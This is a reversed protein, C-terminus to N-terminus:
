VLLLLPRNLELGPISYQLDRLLSRWMVHNDQPRIHFLHDRPAGQAAYYPLSLTPQMYTHDYTQHPAQSRYQQPPYSSHTGPLQPVPQHRRLLRQNTSNIANVDISRQGGSPKKRKVDSPSSDTWLGRSIGDEVDYLALVVSGFDIFPVKVVHRTIRPQLSRLVMQIKDRDLSRDIIEAIKERWPLIFSFVFEESRQRLAKLERRLVDVVTNFSFQRLVEQALDDWTRHRSSELYAFWRQAARSPSLPFLTIM